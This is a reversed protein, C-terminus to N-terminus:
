KFEFLDAPDVLEIYYAQGRGSELQETTYGALANVCAVIRRQDVPDTGEPVMCVGANSASGCRILNGDVRWPEPSHEM